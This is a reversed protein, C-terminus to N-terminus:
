RRSSVTSQIFLQLRTVSHILYISNYHLIAVLELCKKFVILNMNMKLLINLIIFCMM